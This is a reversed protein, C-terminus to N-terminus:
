DKIPVLEFPANVYSKFDVGIEQMDDDGYNYYWTIKVDVKDDIMNIVKFIDMFMKTSSTNLLNMNFIFENENLPSEAYELLWDIVPKYFGSANEPMSNGVIEFKGIEHDFLVAPSEPCALIALKEM